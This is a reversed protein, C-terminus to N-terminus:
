IVGNISDFCSQCIGDYEGSCKRTRRLSRPQYTRCIPCWFDNPNYGNYKKNNKKYDQKQFYYDDDYIYSQRNYSQVATIPKGFSKKNLKEIIADVYLMTNYLQKVSVFENKSHPNHYAVSLNACSIYDRITNADSCAGTTPSYKFEKGIEHLAEEFEKTGYNNNACIIDGSGRRDLVLAYPFKSIDNKPVVQKIGVCGVEEDISFIFNISKDKLLKMLILFIGCKDDGGINGMGKIIRDGRYDFINVFDNLFGCDHDGVSDMHASLIPMKHNNLSFINGNEDKTFPIENKELFKTIYNIVNDNKKSPAYLKFLDLLMGEEKKSFM